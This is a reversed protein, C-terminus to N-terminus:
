YHKTTLLQARYTIIGITGWIMIPTSTNQIAWIVWIGNFLVRITAGVPSVGKAPQKNKLYTFSQKLQPIYQVLAVITATTHAAKAGYSITFIIM